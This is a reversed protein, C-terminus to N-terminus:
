PHKLVALSEPPFEETRRRKYFAILAELHLSIQALAKPDLEALEECLRALRRYNAPFQDCVEGM